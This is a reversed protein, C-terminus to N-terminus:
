EGGFTMEPVTTLGAPWGITPVVTSMVGDSGGEVHHDRDV